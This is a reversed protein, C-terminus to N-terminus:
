RALWGGLQSMYEDVISDRTRNSTVYKDGVLAMTPAICVNAVVGAPDAMAERLDACQGAIDLANFECAMVAGRHLLRARMQQAQWYDGMMFNNVGTCGRMSTLNEIQHRASGCFHITGGGFAALLRENCPRVFERYHEASIATLDDDSFVVGGCGTPLYIAHPYADGDIMHGAHAKQVKLWEILATTCFDLLEHVIDPEDYMWIFLTEVGTMTLALTLPGQTDTVSVAADSNARFYDITALVKPMLGDAEMDPLELRGVDSPETIIAGEAEPDLGKHFRVSVGLSSPLVAIGYWPFLVPVYDDEIEAMHREIKAAQYQFMPVPNYYDEPVDYQGCAAYNVDGLVFAPRDHNEGRWTAAM